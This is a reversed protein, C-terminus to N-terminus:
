LLFIIDHHILQVLSGKLCSGNDIGERIPCGLVLEDTGKVTKLAEGFLM